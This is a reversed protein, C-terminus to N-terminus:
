VFSMLERMRRLVRTFVEFPSILVCFVRGLVRWCLGFGLNSQNRHGQMGKYSNSKGQNSSGEVEEEEVEEKVM